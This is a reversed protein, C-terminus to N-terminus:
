KFASSCCCVLNISISIILISPCLSQIKIYKMNMLLYFVDTSTLDNHIYKRMSIANQQLFVPEEYVLSEM